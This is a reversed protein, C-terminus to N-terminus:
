RMFGQKAKEAKLKNSYVKVASSPVWGEGLAYWLEKTDDVIITCNGKIEHIEGKRFSSVTQSEYGAEKRCAVYPDSILAWEIRPSLDEPSLNQLELQGNNKKCSFFVGCIFILVSFVFLKRIIVFQQRM